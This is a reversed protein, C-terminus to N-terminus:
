LLSTVKQPNKEDFVFKGLNLKGSDGSLEGFEGFLTWCFNWAVHDTQIASKKLLTHLMVLHLCSFRCVCVVSLLSKTNSLMADAHVWRASHPNTIFDQAVNAMDVHVLKLTSLAISGLCIIITLFQLLIWIDIIGGILYCLFNRNSRRLTRAGWM